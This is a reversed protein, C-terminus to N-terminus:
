GLERELLGLIADIQERAQLSLQAGILAATIRSTVGNEFERDSLLGEYDSPFRSAGPAGERFEARAGDQDGMGYLRDVDLQAIYLVLRQHYLNESYILDLLERQREVYAPWAALAQRLEQDPVEAIRGSAILASMAGSSPPNMGARLWLEGILYQIRGISDTRPEPGTLRLMEYGADASRRHAVEIEEFYSRNVRLEVEVSRLAAVVESSERREAWAADIAFALLISGVIVLAEIGFRRLSSESSAL